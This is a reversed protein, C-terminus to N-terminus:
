ARMRKLRSARMQRMHLRVEREIQKQDVPAAAECSAGSGGSGAKGTDAARSFLAAFPDEDAMDAATVPQGQLTVPERSCRAEHLKNCAMARPAAAVAAQGSLAASSNRGSMSGCSLAQQLRAPADAAADPHAPPQLALHLSSTARKAPPQQMFRLEPPSQQERDTELAAESAGKCPAVARAAACPMPAAPAPRAPMPGQEPSDFGSDPCAARGKRRWRPPADAKARVAELPPEEAATQHVHKGTSSSMVQQAPAKRLGTPEVLLRGQHAHMRDNGPPPLPRKGRFYATLRGGQRRPQEPAPTHEAAAPYALQVHEAKLQEQCPTIVSGQQPQETSQAAAALSVHGETQTSANTCPPRTNAQASAAQLDEVAALLQKCTAQVAAVNGSTADLKASLGGVAAGVGEMRSMSAAVGALGEQMSSCSHRVATVETSLAKGQM